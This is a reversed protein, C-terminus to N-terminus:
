GEVQMLDLWIILGAGSVGGAKGVLYQRLDNFIRILRCM